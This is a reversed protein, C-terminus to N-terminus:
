AKLWGQPYVRYRGQPVEVISGVPVFGYWHTEIEGTTENACAFTKWINEGKVYVVHTGDGDAGGDTLSYGEISPLLAPEPPPDKPTADGDGWVWQEDGPVSSGGVHGGAQVRLATLADIADRISLRQDPDSHLLGRVIREVDDPIKEWRTFYALTPDFAGGGREVRDKPMEGTLLVYLVRGLQWADYKYTVVMTPHDASESDIWVQRAEPPMSYGKGAAATVHLDDKSNLQSVIGFDALKLRGAGDVFVNTEEIDRHVIELERGITDVTHALPLWMALAKDTPYGESVGLADKLPTVVEMVIGLLDPLAGSGPTDVRGRFCFDVTVLALESQTKSMLGIRVMVTQKPSGIYPTLRCAREVGDVTTRGVAAEGGKQWPGAVGVEVRQEGLEELHGAGVEDAVTLVRGKLTVRAEPGGLEGLLWRGDSM